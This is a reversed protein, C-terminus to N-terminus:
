HYSVAQLNLQQVADTILRDMDEHYEEVDPCDSFEANDLM